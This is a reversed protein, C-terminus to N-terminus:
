NISTNYETGYVYAIAEEKKGEQVEEMAAEELPILNNSISYMKDIMAQEKQTIGIEQM